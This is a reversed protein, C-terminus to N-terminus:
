KTGGAPARTAAPIVIQDGARLGATVEVVGAATDGLRVWRLEDGEGTRLTVGTLDGQRAIARAPVVLAPHSGLAISLTAASGALFEGDSNSVLANVRYLNGNASPVVGEVMASTARGEIAADISDGRRLRQAIDPTVAATIRLRAADQVSVLPTGPAAFAGPDVYRATVGGTFPARIVSYSSVADLEAAAARATALGAEARALATEAADLQARAAASDAYLARIRKAHTAADDRVATAEAMSAAVHASKAQLERADIRVLAQGARVEDGERVLVETVRGTLKTALTAQRVPEAVGAARFTTAITTDRLRYPTGAVRTPEAEAGDRPEGDCSGVLLASIAIAIATLAVRTTLSTTM